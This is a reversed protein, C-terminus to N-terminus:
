SRACIFFFDWRSRRCSSLVRFSGLAALAAMKRMEKADSNTSVYRSAEDRWVGMPEAASFSAAESPDFVPISPPPPTVHDSTFALLLLASTIPFYFHKDAAALVKVDPTQQKRDLM